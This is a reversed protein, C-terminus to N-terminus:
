NKEKFKLLEKKTVIGLIISFFLYTIAGIIIIFTLNLTKLMFSSQYYSINMSLKTYYVVIAMSLNCVLVKFIFNWIEKKFTFYQNAARYLLLMNAWAAITSGLAIGAAGYFNMFVINLIINILLSYLTVKLPKKQENNAYFIPTFVKNLIFAPLGFSFCALCQATQITDQETFAGRQYLIHVILDALLIIGISCPISIYLAFKVAMEQTKAAKALDKNNYLRSLEPLLITGFTTGILSLPFQYIREAYSLISIAGDIFSAMSQSIFLSIQIIGASIVAPLM